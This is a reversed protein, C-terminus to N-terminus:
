PRGAELVAEIFGFGQQPIATENCELIVCDRSLVERNLDAIEKQYFYWYFDTAPNVTGTATMWYLPQLSFSGGVLLFNPPTANYPVLGTVVPYPNPTYFAEPHWLNAVKALDGDTGYPETSIDISDIHLTPFHKGPSLTEARRLLEQTVLLAVYSNWHTGGKPFVRCAETAKLDRTMQHADLTHVGHRALLPVLRRYNSSGALPDPPGDPFAGPTPRALQAPIGYVRYEDPIFEPYISCKSPTILFLFSVGHAQLFDQLSRLRTAFADLQEDPLADLAFQTLIYSEEALGGDKTLVIHNEGKRTIQRFLSFELQNATRVLQGRLGHNRAYWNAFDRQFTGDRWAPWSLVPDPVPTEVGALEHPLRHTIGLALPGALLAFFIM